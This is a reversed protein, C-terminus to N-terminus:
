LAGSSCFWKQECRQGSPMPVIEGISSSSSSRTVNCSMEAIFDNGSTLSPIMSMAASPTMSAFSFGRM